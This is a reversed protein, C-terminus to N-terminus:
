RRIYRSWPMGLVRLAAVAVAGWAFISAAAMELPIPYHNSFVPSWTTVFQLYLLAIFLGCATSVIAGARIRCALLAASIIGTYQVGFGSAAVLFLSAMLAWLEFGNFRFRPAVLQWLSVVGSLVLIVSSGHLFYWHQAIGFQHAAKPLTSLGQSLSLSVLELGWHEINSKYELANLVFAAREATSFALLMVVFPLLGVLGGLAYRFFGPLTRTRTALPLVLIVPILKVNLAAGLALGALFPMSRIEMLYVAALALCFYLADTNGHYASVLICNVALGYAAFAKSGSLPSGVDSWRRFLLWATLLEAVLCPIKFIQAFTLFHIHESLRSVLAAYYGMLPPHNFARDAVYMPGLGHAAIFSGFRYWARIDNSGESCGWVLVRVLFGLGGLMLWFKTQKRLRTSAQIM